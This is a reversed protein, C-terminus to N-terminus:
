ARKSVYRLQMAFFCAFVKEFVAVAGEIRRKVENLEFPMVYNMCM